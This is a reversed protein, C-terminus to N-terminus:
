SAITVSIPSEVAVTIGVTCLREHSAAVANPLRQRAADGAEGLPFAVDFRVALDTLRSGLEDQIEGATVTVEFSDPEARRTTIFDVDISTCGGIAALLMEVPTFTGDGPEGTGMLVRGGRNNTAEFQGFESRRVVVQTTGEDALPETLASLEELHESVGLVEPRSLM